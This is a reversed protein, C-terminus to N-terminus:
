LCLLKIFDPQESYDVVSELRSFFYFIVVHRYHVRSSGLEVLMRPQECMRELASLLLLLDGAM